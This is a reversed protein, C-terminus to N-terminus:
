SPDPLPVDQWGAMGFRLDREVFEWIVLKKGKLLEPKRYLQQRVLTSAGGDNVISALPKGLKRALHAIFGASGPEDREYIRLFSDGLILVDSDPDDTYPEDTEACMVRECTVKEPELMREMPPSKAMVVVDGYRVLPVSVTEYAGQGKAVWGEDLIRQGVVDAALAMGSPSWHSDQALYHPADTDCKERYVHALDIVDVGAERLREIVGRTHHNVQDDDASARSALMGPYVSAKGPAPVVLLHVGRESLADRYAVIAEVPDGELGEQWPEIFFRAGPKYFFWGDRGVLANEGASKLVAFQVAQMWPRAWSGLWSSDKMEREFDRLNAETPIQTVLDCVQPRDGHAAEVVAQVIGVGAIVALFAAVLGAQVGRSAGASTTM